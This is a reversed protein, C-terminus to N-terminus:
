GFEWWVDGDSDEWGMSGIVVRYKNKKSEPQYSLWAISNNRCHLPKPSIYFDDLDNGIMALHFVDHFDRQKMHKEQNDWKKRRVKNIDLGRMNCVGEYHQFVPDFVVKGTMDEVWAHYDGAFNGGEKYSPYKSKYEFKSLVSM